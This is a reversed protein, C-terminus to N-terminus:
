LNPADNAPASPLCPSLSLISQHTCSRCAHTSFVQVELFARAQVTSRTHGGLLPVLMKFPLNYRSCSRQTPYFNNLIDPKAPFLSLTDTVETISNPVTFTLGRSVTSLGRLSSVKFNNIPMNFSRCTYMNSAEPLVRALLQRTDNESPSLAELFYIKARTCRLFVKYTTQSTQISPFHM